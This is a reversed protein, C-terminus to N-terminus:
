RNADEANDVEWHGHRGVGIYRVNKMQKIHRKVTVASINLNEAIKETSITDDGKVYELIRQDIDVQDVEQSDSLTDGLTDDPTDKLNDLNLNPMVVTFQYRDSRFVPKKREEYNHQMEYRGIIKGLGSGKREMYGLRNFVDALVPNRSTSPVSFPDREQIISGDPMGGPSYIELRDDFMDIHVESGNILYDRHAIANVLAEHYSREVYEPMDIRSNPTKKWMMRTNRKIFTEGNEILSLVQQDETKEFGFRFEPLADLRAKIIESIKEADHEPDKLGIVQDDDSIGFILVGGLTNAFASVSKCWSKPKKVELSVKKDHDAAEGIWYKAKM